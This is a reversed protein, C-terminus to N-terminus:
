EEREKQRIDERGERDRAGRLKREGLGDTNDKLYNRRYQTLKRHEGWGGDGMQLCLGLLTLEQCCKNQAMLAGDREKNEAKEEAALLNQQKRMETVGCLIVTRGRKIRQWSVHAVHAHRNRVVYTVM